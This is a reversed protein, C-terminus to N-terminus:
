PRTYAIFFLAKAGSSCAIPVVVTSGPVAGPGLVLRMPRVTM